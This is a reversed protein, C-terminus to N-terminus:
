CQMCCSPHTSASCAGPPTHCQMCCSPHTSEAHQSHLLHVVRYICLGQGGYIHKLQWHAYTHINSSYSDHWAMYVQAWELKGQPVKIGFTVPSMGFVKNLYNVNTKHIGGM